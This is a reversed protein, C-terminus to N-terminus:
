GYAIKLYATSMEVLGFQLYINCLVGQKGM